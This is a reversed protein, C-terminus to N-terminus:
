KMQIKITDSNLDNLIDYMSREHVSVSVCMAFMKLKACRWNFELFIRAHVSMIECCCPSTAWVLEM